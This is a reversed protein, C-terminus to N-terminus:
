YLVSSLDLLIKDRWFSRFFMFRNFILTLINLNFVKFAAIEEEEAHVPNVFSCVFDTIHKEGGSTNGNDAGNLDVREEQGLHIIIDHSVQARDVANGFDDEKHLLMRSMVRLSFSKTANKCKISSVTFGNVFGKVVASFREVLNYRRLAELLMGPATKRFEHYILIIGDKADGRNAELWNLFDTLASVESKTKVYKNTKSNRLMRYRGLTVIHLNHRRRSGPNLDAFPMIYQSFQSTPTYAAIQCIEDILRRGTTDIAWGVLRYNGEPVGKPAIVEVKVNEESIVENQVM